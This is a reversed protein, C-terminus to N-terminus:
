NFYPIKHKGIKCMKTNNELQKYRINVNKTKASKRWLNPNSTKNDPSAHKNEVLEEDSRENESKNQLNLYPINHKGVTCMKTINETQKERININKTKASKRWLNPNSTKNDPSVPTLMPAYEIYDKKRLHRLNNRPSYRDKGGEEVFIGVIRDELFNNRKHVSM